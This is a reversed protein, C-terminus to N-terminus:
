IGKDLEKKLEESVANMLISETSDDFCEYEDCLRLENLEKKKCNDIKICQICSKEASIQLTYRDKWEKFHKYIEFDNIDLQENLDNELFQPWIVNLKQIKKLNSCYSFNAYRKWRRCTGYKKGLKITCFIQKYCSECTKEELLNRAIAIKLEKNM